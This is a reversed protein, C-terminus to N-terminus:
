QVSMSVKFRPSRSRVPQGVCFGSASSRRIMSAVVLGPSRTASKKQPEPVVAATASSSPRRHSATSEAGSATAIV